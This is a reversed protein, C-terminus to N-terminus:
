SRTIVEFRAQTREGADNRPKLFLLEMMGSLSFGQSGM